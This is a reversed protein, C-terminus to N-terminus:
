PTRAPVHQRIDAIISEVPQDHYFYAQTIGDPDVLYFYTTHDIRPGTEKESYNAHMYERRVKFQRVAAFTQARTGALGLLRPHFNGVFQGLGKLDPEEMSFDIFLPQIQDAERGMADLAQTMTLLAVPCAERCGTYGFYILMWHGRFTTDEVARGNHDTLEFHGGLTQPDPAVYGPAPAISERESVMEGPHHGEHACAPAALSALLMLRAAKMSRPM